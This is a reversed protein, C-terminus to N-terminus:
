INSLATHMNGKGREVRTQVGRQAAIAHIDLGVTHLTSVGVMAKLSVLLFPNEMSSSGSATTSGRLHSYPLKHSAPEIHYRTLM